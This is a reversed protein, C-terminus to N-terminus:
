VIILSISNFAAAYHGKEDAVSPVFVCGLDDIGM